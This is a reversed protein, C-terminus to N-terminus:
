QRCRHSRGSLGSPNRGVPQNWAIEIRFRGDHRFQPHGLPVGEKRTRCMCVLGCSSQREYFRYGEELDKEASDLIRVRM